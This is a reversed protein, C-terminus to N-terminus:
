LDCFGPSGKMKQTLGNRKFGNIITTQLFHGSFERANALLTCTPSLQDELIGSAFMLVQVCEHFMHYIISKAAYGPLKRTHLKTIIPERGTHKLHIIQVKAVKYIFYMKPMVFLISWYTPESNKTSVDKFTFKIM